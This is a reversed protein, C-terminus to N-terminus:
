SIRKHNAYVMTSAKDYENSLGVWIIDSNFNWASDQPIRKTNMLKIKWNKVLMVTKVYFSNICDFFGDKM